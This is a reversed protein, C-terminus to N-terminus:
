NKVSVIDDDKEFHYVEEMNKEALQERSLDKDNL